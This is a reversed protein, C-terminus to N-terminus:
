KIPEKITKFYAKYQEYCDRHIYINTGNIEDTTYDLATEISRGCVWCGLVLRKEWEDLEQLEKRIREREKEIQKLQQERKENM